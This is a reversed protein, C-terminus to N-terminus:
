NEDKGGNADKAFFKIIENLFISAWVGSIFFGLNSWSPEEINFACYLCMVSAIFAFAIAYNPVQYIIKARM